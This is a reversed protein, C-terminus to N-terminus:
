THAVTQLTNNKDYYQFTGDSANYFFNGGTGDGNFKLGYGAALKISGGSMYLQGTIQVAGFLIHSGAVQSGAILARAINCSSDIFVSYPSNSQIHVDQGGSVNGIYLSGASEQIYHQLSGYYWFRIQPLYTGGGDYIEIYTNAGTNTQLNAGTITGGTITSSYINGRISLSSSSSIWTLYGNVGSLYFNGSNDMYTTWSSGNYFGLNSAGLFLGSGSPASTQTGKLYYYGGSGQVIYGFNTQVTNATSLASNATNNATTATSLATNATGQATAAASNATNATNLAINPNYGTEYTCGSGIYLRNANIIGTTIYGGDIQTYSRIWASGSYTYPADGNGTDIWLDGAQLDTNDPRKAPQSASRIVTKAITSSAKTSPDYGTAYTCASSLYIKGASIQTSLVKSYTGDIVQDLLIMGNADIAASKVRKYTTGNAVDDLTNVNIVYPTFNLRDTTITNAKINTATVSGAIISSGSIKVGGNTDIARFQAMQLTSDYWAYVLPVANDATPYDVSKQVTLTASDAPEGDDNQEWEIYFYYQTDGSQFTYNGASVSQSINNVEVDDLTKGFTMKELYIVGASWILKKKDTADVDFVVTSGKFRNSVTVSYTRIANAAIKDATIAGAVIKDSTISNSRINRATIAGDQIQLGGVSQSDLEEESIPSLPIRRENSVIKDKDQSNPSM